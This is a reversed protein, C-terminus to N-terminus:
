DEPDSPGISFVPRMLVVIGMWVVGVVAVVGGLDEVIGLAMILCGIATIAIGVYVQILWRM